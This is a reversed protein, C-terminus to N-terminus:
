KKECLEDFMEQPLRCLLDRDDTDECVLMPKAGPYPAAYQADPLLRKASETPKFLLRDDCIYAFIRGRYYLIYEGMMARHSIGGVGSFGDLIYALYTKSSAM